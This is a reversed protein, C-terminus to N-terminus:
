LAYFNKLDTYARQDTAFLLSFRRDDSIQDRLRIRRFHTDPPNILARFLHPYFFYFEKANRNSGFTMVKFFFETALTSEGDFPSSRDIIDKLQAFILHQSLEVIHAHNRCLVTFFLRSLFIVRRVYPTTLQERIRDELSRFDITYSYKKLAGRQASTAKPLLGKQVIDRLIDFRARYSEISYTCSPLSTQDVGLATLEKELSLFIGTVVEFLSDFPINQPLIYLTQPLSTAVLTSTATFLAKHITPMFALKPPQSQSSPPILCSEMLQEVRHNLELAEEKDPDDSDPEDPTELRIRYLFDQKQSHVILSRLLDHKEEPSVDFLDLISNLLETFYSTQSPVDLAYVKEIQRM